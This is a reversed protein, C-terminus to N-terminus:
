PTTSNSGRFRKSARYGQSMRLVCLIFSFATAVAMLSELVIFIIPKQRQISLIASTLGSVALVPTWAAALLYYGLSVIGTRSNQSNWRPMRGNLFVRLRNIVLKREVPLLFRLGAAIALARDESAM